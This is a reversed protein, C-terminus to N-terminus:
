TRALLAFPLWHDPILAHIVATTCASVVLLVPTSTVPAGRGPLGSPTPAAASTLVCPRRARADSIRRPSPGGVCHVTRQFGRGSQTTSSGATYPLAHNASTERPQVPGDEEANEDGRGQEGAPGVRPRVAAPLISGGGERQAEVIAQAPLGQADRIERCRRLLGEGRPLGLRVVPGARRAAPADLAQDHAGQAAGEVIVQGLSRPLRSRQR